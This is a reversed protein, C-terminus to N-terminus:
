YPRVVKLGRIQRFHKDNLTVLGLGLRLCTSAILCDPWEIGGALRHARVLGLCQEFDASSPWVPRFQSLFRDGATQERKDRLGALFEAITVPHIRFRTGPSVSAVFEAVGSVGRSWDILLSTDLVLDAV